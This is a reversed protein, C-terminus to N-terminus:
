RDVCVGTSSLLVSSRKRGACRATYLLRPAAVRQMREPEGTWAPIDLTRRVEVLLELAIEACRSDRVLPAAVPVRFLAAKGM